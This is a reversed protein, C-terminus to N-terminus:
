ITVFLEVTTFNPLDMELTHKSHTSVLCLRNKERFQNLSFVTIDKMNNNNKRSYNFRFDLVSLSLSLSSISALFIFLTAHFSFIKKKKKVIHHKVFKKLKTFQLIYSCSPNMFASVLLVLNAATVFRM